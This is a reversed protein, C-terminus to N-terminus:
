WAAEAARLLSVGVFAAGAALGTFFALPDLRRIM